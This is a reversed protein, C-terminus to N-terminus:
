PKLKGYRELYQSLFKVVDRAEKEHMQLFASVSNGQEDVDGFVGISYFGEESGGKTWGTSIPKESIVLLKKKGRRKGHHQYAITTHAM